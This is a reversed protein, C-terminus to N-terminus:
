KFMAQYYMTRPEGDPDPEDDGNLKESIVTLGGIPQYGEDILSNVTSLFTSYVYDSVVEYRNKM